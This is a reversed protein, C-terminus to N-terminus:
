KVAENDNLPYSSPLDCGIPIVIHGIFMISVGKPIGWMIRIHDLWENIEKM